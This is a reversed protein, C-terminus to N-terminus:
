NTYDSLITNLNTNHDKWTIYITKYANSTWTHDQGDCVRVWTGDAKIYDIEAWSNGDISIQEFEQGNSVFHMEYTGWLSSDVSANQWVRKKVPEVGNITVANASLTIANVAILEIKDGTEGDTALTVIHGELDANNGTLMLFPFGTSAGLIAYKSGGSLFGVSLRIEDTGKIAEVQYGYPNFTLQGTTGSDTNSAITNGQLAGLITCTSKITCNDIEANSVDLGDGNIRDALLTGTKIFDANIEGNMTAALSYTGNYGTNSYGWGSLNWRWVKTATSIDATDMVLIEDPYGDNDSDNLRVYGGRNGTILQSAVNAANLLQAESPKGQVENNISVITDALSAKVSGIDISIFKEGVADYVTRIVKATASVGLTSFKITVTDCLKITELAAIIKYEETDRLNQFSVSLSVDPIGINNNTIYAQAKTRLDAETPQEEFESSLDLPLIRTFPYTGVPITKETLTVLTNDEGSSKWYPYVSSYVKNNNEEQSLDILNKGYEITVGRNSGRHLYEIVSFRDFKWEGGYVDLISGSQGGMASRISCPTKISFNAQTTRSTSFSFPTAETSHSNFSALASPISTATFPELIYGSLDYSIHQAYITIIGNLPKTIKYVRFPQSADDPNAKALIISRLAISSCLKGNLPYTMELEYSGNREETVQCSIVDALVGLGLTNFSTTNQAYLTIM